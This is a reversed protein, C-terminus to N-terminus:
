KEKRKFTLFLAGGVTLSLVALATANSEVSTNPIDPTEVNQSPPVEVDVDPFIIGGIFDEYDAGQEKMIRALDVLWPEKYREYIFNLSVFM